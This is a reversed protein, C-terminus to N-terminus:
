LFVTLCWWFVELVIVGKVGKFLGRKLPGLGGIPPHKPINQTHKPPTLPLKQSTNPTNQSTKLPLCLPSCYSFVSFIFIPLMRKLSGQVGPNWIRSRELRNWPPFKVYFGIKPDFNFFEPAWPGCILFFSRLCNESFIALFGRLGKWFPRVGRNVGKFARLFAVCFWRPCITTRIQAKENGLKTTGGSPVSPDPFDGQPM